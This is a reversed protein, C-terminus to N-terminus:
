VLDRILLEWQNPEDHRLDRHVLIRLRLPIDCTERLIPILKRQQAAPDLIQAMANEFKTWDSKLYSPTLVMITHRSQEVARQMEEVSLSGTKFDRFDIIVSFGRSELTSLLTNRVWDSDKSSYSIFIDHM